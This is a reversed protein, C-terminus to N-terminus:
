ILFLKYPGHFWPWAYVADLFRQRKWLKLVSHAWLSVFVGTAPLLAQQKCEGEFVSQLLKKMGAQRLLIATSWGGTALYVDGSAVSDTAPIM